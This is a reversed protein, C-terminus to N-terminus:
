SSAPESETQHDESPEQYRGSGPQDRFHEESPRGRHVPPGQDHGPHLKDGASDPSPREWNNEAAAGKYLGFNWQDRAHHLSIGRPPPHHPRPLLYLVLEVGSSWEGQSSRDEQETTASTHNNFSTQFNAEPVAPYDPYDPYDGPGWYSYIYDEENKYFIAM